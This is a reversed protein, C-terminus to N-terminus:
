KLFLYVCYDFFHCCNQFSYGGRNLRGSSDLLPSAFQARKVPSKTPSQNTTCVLTEHVDSIRRRFSTGRRSLSSPTQNHTPSPSLRRHSPLVAEEAAMVKGSNKNASETKEIDTLVSMLTRRRKPPAPTRESSSPTKPRLNTSQSGYFSDSTHVPQRCESRLQKTEMVPTLSTRQGDSSKRSDSQSASAAKFLSDSTKTGSSITKVSRSIASSGSRCQQPPTIHQQFGGSRIRHSGSQQPLGVNLFNKLYEYADVLIEHGLFQLTIETNSSKNASSQQANLLLTTYIPMKPPLFLGNKPFTVVPGKRVKLVLCKKEQDWKVMAQELPMISRSGDQIWRVKAPWERSRDM